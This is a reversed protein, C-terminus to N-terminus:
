AAIGLENASLAEVLAVVVERCDVTDVELNMAALAEAEQSGVSGALGGRHPHDRADRRHRGPSQADVIHVNPSPLAVYLLEQSITEWASLRSGSRLTM